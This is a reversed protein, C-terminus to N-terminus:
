VDHLHTLLKPTYDTADVVLLAIVDLVYVAPKDDFVALDVEVGDAQGVAQKRKGKLVDEPYLRVGGRYQHMKPAPLDVIDGQLSGRGVVNPLQQEVILIVVLHDLFHLVALLVLLRHDDM